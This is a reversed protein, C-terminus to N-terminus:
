ERKGYRRSGSGTDEVGAERVKKERKGGRETTIREEKDWKYQLVDRFTAFNKEIEGPERWRQVGPERGKEGPSGGEQGM